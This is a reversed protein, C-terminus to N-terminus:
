KQYYTTTTTGVTETYAGSCSTGNGFDLTETASGNTVVTVDGQVFYNCNPTAFNKLLPSTITIAQNNHKNDYGNLTGTASFQIDQTSDIGKIWQWNLSGTIPYAISNITVTTNINQAFNLYGSGDTYSILSMGGSYTGSDLTYANFTLTATDGAIRYNTSNYTIVIQGARYHGDSGTCGSGFNWIKTYPQKSTDITVSGCSGFAQEASESKFSSKNSSMYATMADIVGQNVLVFNNVSPAPATNNNGSPNTNEKKCSHLTAIAVLAAFLVVRTKTKLTKM